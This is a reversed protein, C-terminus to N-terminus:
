LLLLAVAVGAAAIAVYAAAEVAVEMKRGGRQQKEVLGFLKGADRLGAGAEGLLPFEHELFHRIDIIRPEAM